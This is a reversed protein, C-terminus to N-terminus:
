EVVDGGVAGSPLPEPQTAAPLTAPQTAPAAPAEPAPPVPSKFVIVVNVREDAPAQSEPAAASDQTASPVVTPMTAPNVPDAGATVTADPASPKSALPAAQKAVTSSDAPVTTPAPFEDKRGLLDVPATTQTEAEAPWTTPAAPPQVPEATQEKAGAPPGLGAPVVQAFIQMQQRGGQQLLAANLEAAQTPSLDKALILEDQRQPQATAPLAQAMQRIQELEPPERLVQAVEANERREAKKLEFEESIAATESPGVGAIPQTAPEGAAYSEPPQLPLVQEKARVPPTSEIQFFPRTDEAPPENRAEVVPATTPANITELRAEVQAEDPAAPDNLPQWAIANSALFRKVAGSAVAPESANVVFFLTQEAPRVAVREARLSDDFAGQLEPKADAARALPGAPPVSSPPVPAQAEQETPRSERAQALPSPAPGAAAAPADSQVPAETAVIENEREPQAADALPTLVEVETEDSELAPEDADLTLEDASRQTPPRVDIAVQAAERGLGLVGYLVLGLGAALVLVAALAMVQPWRNQRRANHNAPESSDDLLVSRELQGQLTEVMDAPADEHPLDRLMQRARVLEEILQRHKPNAALHQEIEARDAPDLEGDIYAALKAEINETNAM